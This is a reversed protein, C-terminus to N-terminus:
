LLSLDLDRAQSGELTETECKWRAAPDRFRAAKYNGWLGALEVSSWDGGRSGFSEGEWNGETHRTGASVAM